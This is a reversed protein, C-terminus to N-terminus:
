SSHGKASRKKWMLFIIGLAALILVIAVIASWQSTQLPLPQSSATTNELTVLESSVQSYANEITTTVTTSVVVSEVQISAISASLMVSATASQLNMLVIFFQGSYPPTWNVSYSTQYSAAKLSPLVPIAGYFNCLSTAPPVREFQGASMVYFDIPVNSVFNVTLQDGPKANFPFGASLCGMMGWGMLPFNGNYITNTVTSTVQTLGVSYTSYSILTSSSVATTLSTSVQSPAVQNTSNATLLLISILPFVLQKSIM